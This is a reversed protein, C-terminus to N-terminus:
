IIKLAEYLGVELAEEYSKQNDFTLVKSKTRVIIIYGGGYENDIDYSIEIHINHVERLWRQLLSQTSASYILTGIQPSEKGLEGWIIWDRIVLKNSQGEIPDDCTYYAPSSLNFGVQKALKAVQFRVLAEQM